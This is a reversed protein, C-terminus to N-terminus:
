PVNRGVWVVRGVVKIQHGIESTPFEVTRYSKNESILKIQTSRSPQLRKVVLEQAQLLAYIGERIQTEARNIIVMDDRRLTPEMGDSTIYLLALSDSSVDVHRRLWSRKFPLHDLREAFDSLNSGPLPKGRPAYLPLFAVDDLVAQGEDAKAPGAGMPESGTLLWEPRVGAADAIAIIAGSPAEGSIFYKRITSQPIHSAKALANVSGILSALRELRRKLGERSTNPISSVPLPPSETATTATVMKKERSLLFSELHAM